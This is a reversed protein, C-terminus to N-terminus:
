WLPTLGWTDKFDPDVGEKALLLKVVAGYGYAAARWLPTQGWTNSPPTEVTIVTAKTGSAIEKKLHIWPGPATSFFIRLLHKGKPTM